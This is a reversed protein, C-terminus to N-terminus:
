SGPGEWLSWLLRGSGYCLRGGQVSYVPEDSESVPPTWLAQEVLEGRRERAVRVGQGPVYCALAARGDRTWFAAHAKRSWTLRAAVRWAGAGDREMVLVDHNISAMLRQGQRDFLLAIEPVGAQAVSPLEDACVRERALIQGTDGEILVLEQGALAAVIPELPSTASTWVLAHLRVERLPEGDEPSIFTLDRRLMSSVCCWRGHAGWGGGLREYPLGEGFLDLLGAAFDEAEGQGSTESMMAELASLHRVGLPEGDPLSIMLLWALLGGELACLLARQGTPSTMILHVQRSFSLDFPVEWAPAEPWTPAIFIPGSLFDRPRQAMVLHGRDPTLAMACPARPLGVRPAQEDDELETWWDCLALLEHPRGARADRVWTAPAVTLGVPWERLHEQLYPLCTHRARPSAQEWWDCLARWSSLSPAHLASRLEGFRDDDEVM